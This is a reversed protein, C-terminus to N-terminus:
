NRQPLAPKPPTDIVLRKTILLTGNATIRMLYIGSPLTNADIQGVEGGQLTYQQVTEGLLNIIEVRGNSVHSLMSFDVMMLRPNVPDQCVRVSRNWFDLNRLPSGGLISGEEQPPTGKIVITLQALRRKREPDLAFITIIQNPPRLAPPSLHLLFTNGNGWRGVTKKFPLSLNGRGSWIRDVGHVLCPYYDNLPQPSYDQPSAFLQIEVRQEGPLYGGLNILLPNSWQTSNTNLMCYGNECIQGNVVFYVEEEPLCVAGLGGRNVTSHLLLLAM